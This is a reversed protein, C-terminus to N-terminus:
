DGALIDARPPTWSPVNAPCRSPRREIRADSFDLAPNRDYRLDGFVLAGEGDKTWYPARVFRLLAAAQCNDRALSRLEDLPATFEGRWRVAPSDARTSPALPATPEDDGDPCRHLPFLAPWPAVTARRAIYLSADTELTLAAFCFPNAPMPTVIVEHVAGATPVRRVASRAAGAAGFFVAAVAFCGGVGAVARM